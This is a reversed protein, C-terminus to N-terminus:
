FQREHGSREFKVPKRVVWYSDANKDKKQSLFDKGFLRALFGLPTLILYFLIVLIVRTMIWGMVVAISMWLKHAPLLISPAILGFFLLSSSIVLLVLGAGKGKWLFLAGVLGLVVGVTVAFKRLETKSSNINRIEEIIM